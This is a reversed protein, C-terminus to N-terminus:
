RDYWGVKHVLLRYSKAPHFLLYYPISMLAFVGLYVEGPVSRLANKM